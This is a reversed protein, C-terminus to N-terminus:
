KVQKYGEAIAAPLQSKPISGVQGNRDQVKVREETGPTPVKPLTVDKLGMRKYLREKLEQETAHAFTGANAASYNDIRERIQREKSAQILRSIAKVVEQDKTYPKGQITQSYARKLEDAKSPNLSSLAIAFDQNSIQKENAKLIGKLAATTGFNGNEVLAISEKTKEYDDKLPTLEDKSFKEVAGRLEAGAKLTRESQKLRNQAEIEDLKRQHQLTEAKTAAAQQEPTGYVYAQTENQIEPTKPVLNNYVQQIRDTPAGIGALQMTLDNAVGRVSALQKAQDTEVARIQQVRENASSISRQVALDQVGQKLAGFSQLLEEFGAM